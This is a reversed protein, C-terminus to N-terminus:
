VFRQVFLEKSDCSMPLVILKKSAQISQDCRKSKLIHKLFVNTAKLKSWFSVSLTACIVIYYWTDFFNRGRCKAVRKGFEILMFVLSSMTFCFLFPVCSHRFRASLDQTLDEEFIAYIILNVCFSIIPSILAHSMMM